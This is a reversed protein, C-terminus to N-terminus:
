ACEALRATQQRLGARFNHDILGVAARLPKRDALKEVSEVGLEFGWIPLHAFGRAAIRVTKTTPSTFRGPAKGKLIKM